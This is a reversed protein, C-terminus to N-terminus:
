YFVPHFQIYHQLPTVQPQSTHPHLQPMYLATVFVDLHNTSHVTHQVSTINQMAVLSEFRQLLCVPFRQRLCHRESRFDALQKHQLPAKLAPAQSLLLGAQRRAQTQQVRQMAPQADTSAADQSSPAAAPGRQLRSRHQQRICLLPHHQQSQSALPHQVNTQRHGKTEHFSSLPCFSLLSM